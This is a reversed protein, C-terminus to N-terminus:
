VKHCDGEKDDSLIIIKHTQQFWKDDNHRHHREHDDTNEHDDHDDSNEDLM